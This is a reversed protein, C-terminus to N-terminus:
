VRAMSHFLASGTFGCFLLCLNGGMYCGVGESGSPLHSPPHFALLSLLYGPHLGLAALKRNKPTFFCKDSKMQRHFTQTSIECTNSITCSSPMMCLAANEGPHGAVSGVCSPIIQGAFSVAACEGEWLLMRERSPLSVPIRLAGTFSIAAMSSTRDGPLVVIHSPHLPSKGDSLLLCQLEPDQCLLLFPCVDGPGDSQFSAM